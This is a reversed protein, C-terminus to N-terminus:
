ASVPLSGTEEPPGPLKPHGRGTPKHGRDGYDGDVALQDGKKVKLLLGEIGIVAPLGLSRALIAAHSEKGGSETAFALVKDRDLRVTDSPTLERAVIIVPEKFDCASEQSSMLKEILRRGVDRLDAGRERFYPDEMEEFVKGFEDVQRLVAAEANMGNERIEKLIRAIWYPDELMAVHALFIAAETKGIRQSAQFHDEMLEDIVQRVAEKLRAVEQETQEEALTRKEVRLLIDQFVCAKGIVIGPSAPIGKLFRKSIESEM